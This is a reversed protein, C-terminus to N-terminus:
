QVNNRDLEVHANNLVDAYIIAIKSNYFYKSYPTKFLKLWPFIEDRHTVYSDKVVNICFMM